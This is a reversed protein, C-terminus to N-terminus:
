VEASRLKLGEYQSSGSAIIFLRNFVLCRSESYNDREAWRVGLKIFGSCKTQKSKSYKKWTFTKFQYLFVGLFALM